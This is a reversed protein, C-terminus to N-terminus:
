LSQLYKETWGIFIDYFQQTLIKEMIKSLLIYHSPLNTFNVCFFIIFVTTRLFIRCAYTAIFEGAKNEEFGGLM